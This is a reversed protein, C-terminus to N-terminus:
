IISSAASDWTCYHMLQSCPISCERGEQAGTLMHLTANSLISFPSELLGKHMFIRGCPTSIHM